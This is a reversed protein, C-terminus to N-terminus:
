KVALKRGSEPESTHQGANGPSEKEGSGSNESPSTSLPTTGQLYQEFFELNLVVWSLRYLVMLIANVAM